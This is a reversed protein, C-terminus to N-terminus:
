SGYFGFPGVVNILILRSSKIESIVSSVALFHEVVGSNDNSGDELGRGAMDVVLGPQLFTRTM